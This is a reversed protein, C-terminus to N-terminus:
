HGKPWDFSSRLCLENLRTLDLLRVVTGQGAPSTTGILLSGLKEITNHEILFNRKRPFQMRFGVSTIDAFGRDVPALKTTTYCLSRCSVFSIASWMESKVTKSM